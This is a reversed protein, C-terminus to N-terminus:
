NVSLSNLFQSLEESYDLGETTASYSGECFGESESATLQYKDLHYVGITKYKQSDTQVYANIYSNEVTGMCSDIQAFVTLNNENYFTQEATLEERYPTRPDEGLCHNVGDFSFDQSPLMMYADTDSFTYKFKEGVANEVECATVLDEETVTGWENQYNFTIGTTSSTYTSQNSDESDNVEESTEQPTATSLDEGNNNQTYVYFGTFVLISIILVILLGAVLTFGKQSNM